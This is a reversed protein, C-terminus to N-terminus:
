KNSENSASMDETWNIEMGYAATRRRRRGGYVDKRGNQIDVNRTTRKNKGYHLTNLRREINLASPSVSIKLNIFIEADLDLGLYRANTVWEGSDTANPQWATM